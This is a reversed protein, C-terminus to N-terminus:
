FVKCTGKYGENEGRNREDCRVEEGGGVVGGVSVAECGWVRGCFM